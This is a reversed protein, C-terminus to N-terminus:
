LDQGRNIKKSKKTVRKCIGGLRNIVKLKCQWEYERAELTDTIKDDDWMPDVIVEELLIIELQAKLDSDYIKQNKRNTFLHKDPARVNIHTSLECSRIRMKIHSKHNAWRLKINKTYGVYDVGCIKDRIQYIVYDSECSVTGKIPYSINTNYSRAIKTEFLYNKCLTCKNCGICGFDQHHDNNSSNNPLNSTDKFRSSTLLSQINSEIKYTVNLNDHFLQKTNPHLDLIPAHEKIINSMNPLHPNYKIVLPFTRKHNEGKNSGTLLSQRDKNNTEEVASNIVEDSYGRSQLYGVYDKVSNQYDEETTSNRKIRTIVGNPINKCMHLPHCSTPLLYAHPDCPKSYVKTSIQNNIGTYIFLDLYEVGELSPESPNMVFKLDDDCSNLFTCFERLESDSGIFPVYIDDRFGAWLPIKNRLPNVESMVVDDILYHRAIDAYSCAHAPGMATGECQAYVNDCFETVNNYLCFEIAEIICETPILNPHEIIPCRNYRANLAKRCSEICRSNNINPYMATIDFSAHLIRELRLLESHNLDELNGSSTDLIKM